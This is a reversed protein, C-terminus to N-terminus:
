YLETLGNDLNFTVLDGSGTDIATASISQKISNGDSIPVSSATVQMTPVLITLRHKDNEAGEDTIFDLKLSLFNDSKFYQQRFAESSPSYLCSLEVTCNRTNPVPKKYHYGTSTTQITNEVNNNYNLQISNIDALETGDVYIKGQVFKFARQLSPEIPTLSGTTVTEDYGKLELDLDMYGEPQASITFSNIVNGPYTYTYGAGKDVKATFSPLTNRHPTFSFVDGDLSQNGLAMLLFFGLDDPRALTKINGESRIGLTDFRAQGINGTLVNEQAKNPVYDLSVSSFRLQKFGSTAATPTDGSYTDKAIQLIVNNGSTM